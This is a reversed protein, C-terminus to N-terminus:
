YTKTICSTQVGVLEELMKARKLLSTVIWAEYGIVIQVIM